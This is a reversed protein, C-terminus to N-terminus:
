GGSTLLPEPGGPPHAVDSSRMALLAADEAVAKGFMVVHLRQDEMATLTREDDHVEVRVVRPVQHDYRIGV